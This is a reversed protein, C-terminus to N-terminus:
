IVLRNHIYLGKDLIRIWALIKTGTGRTADNSRVLDEDIYSIYIMALLKM